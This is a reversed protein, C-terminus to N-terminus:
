VLSGEAFSFAGFGAPETKKHFGFHPERKEQLGPVGSGQFGRSDQFEPFWAQRGVNQRSDVQNFELATGSGMVIMVHCHDCPMGARTVTPPWLLTLLLM